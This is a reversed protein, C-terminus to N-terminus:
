DQQLLYLISNLWDLRDSDNPDAYQPTVYLLPAWDSGPYGAWYIARASFAYAKDDTPTFDFEASGGLSQIDEATAIKADTVQINDLLFSVANFTGVYYSGSGAYSYTARIRIIRDAFGALSISRNVFNSDQLGSVMVKQTFVSQWTTGGDLSVQVSAMQDPTSYGLKSSFVLESAPSPIYANDLEVWEPSTSQPLSAPALKYSASGSIGSGADILAYTSSTGDIVNSGGDEANHVVASDTIEAVYADYSHAHGITDIRYSSASNIAPTEDGSVMASSESLANAPDFVKVTYSFDRSVGGIIVNSVTVGYATDSPPKPWAANSASASLGKPRWVISARRGGSGPRSDITSSISNGNETMSISASGFDAGPYTFSWRVPVIPYPNFGRTPWAVFEDRVAPISNFYESTVVWIANTAPEPGSGYPIDGTGMMETQPLLLWRRHGVEANNTGNDRIQGSVAEWGNRGLSLNSSGAADDGDASYCTWAEGPYHSLQNNTSMMLAAEQAKANLTSDFRIAAPVGAMARYFNIRALVANKFDSGTDGAACASHDGTWNIPTGPSAAYVSNFFARVLQRNSSDIHWGGTNDAPVQQLGPTGEASLADRWDVPDPLAKGLSPSDPKLLAPLSTGSLGAGPLALLLVLSSIWTPFATARM